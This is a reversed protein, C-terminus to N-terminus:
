KNKLEIIFKSGEHLKYFEELRLTGIKYRKDKTVGKFYMVFDHQNSPDIRTDFRNDPIIINGKEDVLCLGQSQMVPIKGEATYSVKLTDNDWDLKNVVIKGLEGQPLDIPLKNIDYLRPNPKYDERFEFPLFTLSKTDSDILNSFHLEGASGNSSGGRANIMNGKDDILFYHYKWMAGSVEIATTLPSTSIRKITLKDGDLDIDKNVIYNKTEKNIEKRNIKINLQWNGELEDISMVNMGLYFTDFVRDRMTDVELVGDYRYDNVQRGNGGYGGSTLPKGNIKFDIISVNPHKIVETLKIDSIISYSIMIENDDSAIENVVFKIGKDYATLDVNAAYKKYDAYSGRLVEMKQIISEQISAALAPKNIAFTGLCLLLLAAAAYKTLKKGLFLKKNIKSKIRKSMIPDLEFEDESIEDVEAYNLFEYINNDDQKIISSM